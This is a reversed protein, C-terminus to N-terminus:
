RANCKERGPDDGSEPDAASSVPLIGSVSRTCATYGGPFGPQRNCGSCQGSKRGRGCMRLGGRVIGGPMLKELINRNGFVDESVVQVCGSLVIGVKRAPEGESWIVEQKQFYKKRGDMCNLISECDKRSIGQFLPMKAFLDQYTEMIKRRQQFDLM